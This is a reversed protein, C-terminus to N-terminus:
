FNGQFQTFFPQDLWVGNHHDSSSTKSVFMLLCLNSLIAEV